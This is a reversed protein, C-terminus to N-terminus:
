RSLTKSAQKWARQFSTTELNEYCISEESVPDAPVTAMPAPPVVGGPGSTESNAAHGCANVIQRLTEGSLKVEFINEVELALAARYDPRGEARLEAWRRVVYKDIAPTRKVNVGRGLLVRSLLEPDRSRIAAAWSRITKRDVDFVEELAILKVNANYLRGVMMKFAPHGPDDPVVELLELGYFVRISSRDASHYLSFCPNRKDTPLILDHAHCSEM